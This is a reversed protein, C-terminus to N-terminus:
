SNKDYKIKEWPLWVWGVSTTSIVYAATYHNGDSRYVHFFSIVFCTEDFDVTGVREGLFQTSQTQWTPFLSVERTSSRRMDKRLILDGPEIKM